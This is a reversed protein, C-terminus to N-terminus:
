GGPSPCSLRKPTATRHGRGRVSGVRCSTVM